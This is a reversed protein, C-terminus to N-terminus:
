CSCPMERQSQMSEIDKGDQSYEAMSYASVAEKILLHYYFVNGAYLPFDWMMGKGNCREWSITISIREFNRFFSDTKISM